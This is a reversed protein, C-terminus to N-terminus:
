TSTGRNGRMVDKFTTVDNRALWLVVQRMADRAHDTPYSVGLKQLKEDTAFGKADARSQEIVLDFCVYKLAGIVYLADPQWTKRLTGAGVDFREVAVADIVRGEYVVQEVWSIADWMPMQTAIFKRSTESYTALGTTTGPDIGIIM